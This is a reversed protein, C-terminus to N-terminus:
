RIGDCTISRTLGTPMEQKLDKEDLHYEITMEQQRAADSRTKYDDNFTEPEPIDIDDSIERLWNYSDLKGCQSFYNTIRDTNDNNIELDRQSCCGRAHASDM